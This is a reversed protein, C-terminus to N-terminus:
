RRRGTAVREAITPPPKCAIGFRGLRGGEHVGGPVDEFSEGVGGPQAEEGEHRAFFEGDGLELFDEAHGLGADGGL